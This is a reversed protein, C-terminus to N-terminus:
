YQTLSNSGKSCFKILKGVRPEDPVIKLYNDLAAKFSDVSCKSINRVHIPLSNFIQAGKVALSNFRITKVKHPASSRIKPIVGYRGTRNNCGIEIGFNPVIGEM